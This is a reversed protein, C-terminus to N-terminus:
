MNYWNFWVPCINHCLPLIYSFWMLVNICVNTKCYSFTYSRSIGHAWKTRYKLVCATFISWVLQLYRSGTTNMVRAVVQLEVQKLSILRESCLFLIDRGLIWTTWKTNTTFKWNKMNFQTSTPKAIKKELKSYKGLHYLCLISITLLCTLWLRIKSFFLFLSLLM